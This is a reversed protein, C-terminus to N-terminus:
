FGYITEQSPGGCYQSGAYEKKNQAHSFNIIFYIFTRSKRMLCLFFFCLVSVLLDTAHQIASFYKKFTLNAFSFMLFLPFQLFSNFQILLPFSLSFSLFAHGKLYDM